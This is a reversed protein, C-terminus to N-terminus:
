ASVAREWPERLRPLHPEQGSSYWARGSGLVAYAAATAAGWGVSGDDPELADPPQAPVTGLAQAVILRAERMESSPHAWNYFMAWQNLWLSHEELVLKALSALDPLRRVAADLARAEDPTLRRARDLIAAVASDSPNTEPLDPKTMAMSDVIPLRRSSVGGFHCERESERRLRRRDHRLHSLPRQCADCRM